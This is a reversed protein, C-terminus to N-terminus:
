PSDHQRNLKSTTAPALPPPLRLKGHHTDERHRRHHSRSLRGTRLHLAARYHPRTLRRTRTRRHVSYLKRRLGALIHVIAVASQMGPLVTRVFTDPTQLLHDRQDSSRTHGLNHM